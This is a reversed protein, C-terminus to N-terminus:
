KEGKLYSVLEFIERKVDTTKKLMSVYLGDIKEYAEDYVVSVYYDLNRDWNLGNIYIEEHENPFLINSKFGVEKEKYNGYVIELISLIDKEIIDLSMNNTIKIIIKSVNSILDVQVEFGNTYLVLTPYNIIKINFSLKNLKEIKDCLIAEIDAEAESYGYLYVPYVIAHIRPTLINVSSKVWEEYQVQMKSELSKIEYYNKIKESSHGVRKYFEGDVSYPKNDSSFVDICILRKSKVTFERIKFFPTRSLKTKILDSLKDVTVDVNFGIIEKKDSVGLILRGMDLNSNAYACITKSISTKIQKDFDRIEKYELRHNEDNSSIYKEINESTMVDIDFENM